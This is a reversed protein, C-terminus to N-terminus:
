GERYVTCRYAHRQAMATVTVASSTAGGGRLAAVLAALPATARVDEPPGDGVRDGAPPGSRAQGGDTRGGPAPGAQAPGGPAGDASRGGATLTGSPSGCGAWGDAAPGGRTPDG